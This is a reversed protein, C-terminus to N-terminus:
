LKPDDEARHPVCVCSYYNLKAGELVFYMTKWGGILFGKYKSLVGEKSAKPNMQTEDLINSSFFACM